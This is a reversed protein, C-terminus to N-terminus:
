WATAHRWFLAYDSSGWQQRCSYLAAPFVLASAAVLGAYLWVGLPLTLFVIVSLLLHVGSFLQAQGRHGIYDLKYCVLTTMMFLWSAVAVTAVLGLPGRGSLDVALVVAFTLGACVVATRKLSRDVVAALAASQARLRHHPQEEMASRMQTVARDFSPALRVFYYNYALVAPFLGVFLATVAFAGDTKLFVLLLHAWLVAGLLVGRGMDQAVDAHELRAPRRIAGLHGRLFFLQSVLGAVPPLFWWSPVLLLTGAYVAWALAWVVRRKGINAVVLSQAFAAHLLCLAVYTLWATAPWRMVLELPVAFLLVAPATQAYTLPWVACFRQGIAEMDGGAILGGVARYIPLCIAVGLWPVTLSSALLLTTLPVGNVREGAIRTVAIPFAFTLLLVPSLYLVMDGVARVGPGRRAPDSPALSAPPAPSAARAAGARRQLTMGALCAVAAAVAATAIAGVSWVPLLATCLLLVVTLVPLPHVRALLPALM